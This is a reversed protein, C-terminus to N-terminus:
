TTINKEMINEYKIVQEIKEIASRLRWFKLNFMWVDCNSDDDEKLIKWYYLKDDKCRKYWFGKYKRYNM